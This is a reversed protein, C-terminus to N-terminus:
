KFRMIEIKFKFCIFEFYIAISLFDFRGFHWCVYFSPLIYIGNRNVFSDFYFKYRSM